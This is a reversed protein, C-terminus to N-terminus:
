SWSILFSLGSARSHTGDFEDFKLWNSATLTLQALGLLGVFEMNETKEVTGFVGPM